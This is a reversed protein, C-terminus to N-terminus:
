PREVSNNRRHLSTGWLSPDATIWQLSFSMNVDFGSTQTVTQAPHDWQFDYVPPSCFLLINIFCVFLTESTSHFEESPPAWPSQGNSFVLQKCRLWTDTDCGTGFIMVLHNSFLDLIGLTDGCEQKTPPTFNRLLPLPRHLNVTPTPPPPPLPPGSLLFAGCIQSLRQCPSHYVPPLCAWSGGPDRWVTTGDTSHLERVPLPGRHNVTLFVVQKVFIGSTQTVAQAPHDWQIDYVPPSCAWSGGPDRWVIIETSHLEKLPHLSTGELPPTRRSEGYSFSGAKVFTGSTQTM